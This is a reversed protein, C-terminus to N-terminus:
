ASMREESPNSENLENENIQDDSLQYIMSASLVGDLRHFSMIRDAVMKRSEDEVTIVLRGDDTVAHIEVGQQKELQKRVVDMKEHRAHLLVGCLNYESM